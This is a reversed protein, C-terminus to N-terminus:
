KNKPKSSQKFKPYKKLINEANKLAAKKQFDKAPERGNIGVNVLKVGNYVDMYHDYLKKANEKTM